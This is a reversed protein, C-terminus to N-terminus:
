SGQRKCAVDPLFAIADDTIDAKHWKSSVFVPEVENGIYGNMGIITATANGASESSKAEPETAVACSFGGGCGIVIGQAVLADACTSPAVGIPSPLWVSTMALTIKPGPPM